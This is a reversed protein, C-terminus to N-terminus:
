KGIYNLLQTYIVLMNTFITKNPIDDHVGFINENDAM